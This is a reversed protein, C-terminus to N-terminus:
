ARFSPDLRAYHIKNHHIFYNGFSVTKCGASIKKRLNFAGNERITTKNNSIATRIGSAAINNSRNQNIFLQFRNKM